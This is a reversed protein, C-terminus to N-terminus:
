SLEMGGTFNFRSATVYAAERSALWVAGEAVEEPTVRRGLPLGQNREARLTERSRGTVRVLDEELGEILGGTMRGPVLCNVTIGHPALAVAASRALSDVAAKSAGYSAFHPFGMKSAPTSILVIRGFRKPIMVRAAAQICLLTGRTNVAFVQDWRETTVELLNDVLCIGACHVVSDLRGHRAVITDLRERWQREVTVDLPVVEADPIEAAVRALGAEDRDSLLVRAGERRFVSAVAAGLAGAAGTVLAIQDALLM